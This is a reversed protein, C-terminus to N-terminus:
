QADELYDEAKKKKGKKPPYTPLGITWMAAGKYNGELAQQASFPLFRKGAHELRKAPGALKPAGKTSLYEQGM